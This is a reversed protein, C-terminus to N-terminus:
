AGVAWVCGRPGALGVVDDVLNKLGWDKMASVFHFSMINNKGAGGARARRKVWPELSVPEVTSPLLDIKTVVLVMRPLNAPKGEKWAKHNEEITAHVLKAVKRPFSGDFDASDVVMLVVSWTRGTSALRRGIPYDFNFDPLLNEVTPDKVKGYHRLSHCRM